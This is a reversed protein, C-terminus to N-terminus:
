TKHHRVRVVWVDGAKSSEKKAEQFEEVTLNIVAGPRQFSNTMVAHALLYTASDLQESTPLGRGTAMRVISSYFEWVSITNMIEQAQKITTRGGDSQEEMQAMQKFKRLSLRWNKLIESTKEADRFKKSHSEM